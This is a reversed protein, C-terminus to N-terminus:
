GRCQIQISINIIFDIKRVLNPLYKGITFHERVILIIAMDDDNVISFLHQLIENIYFVHTMVDIIISFNMNKQIHFVLGIRPKTKFDSIHTSIILIIYMPCKCFIRIFHTVETVRWDRVCSGSTRMGIPDTLKRWQRSFLITDFSDETFFPNM